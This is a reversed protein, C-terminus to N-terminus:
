EDHANADGEQGKRESSADARGFWVVVQCCLGLQKARLDVIAM